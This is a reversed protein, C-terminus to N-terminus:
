QVTVSTAVIQDERQRGAVEVRTDATLDDCTGLGSNVIIRTNSTIVVLVTLGGQQRLDFQGGDGRCRPDGLIVGTNVSIIFTGDGCGITLGLALIRIWRRV